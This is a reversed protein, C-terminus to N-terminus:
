IIFHNQYFCVAPFGVAFNYCVISQFIAFIKMKFLGRVAETTITYLAYLIAFIVALRFLDGSIHFLVNLIFGSFSLLYASSIVTLAIVIIYTTSIINTHRQADEKESNYKVMATNFGLLMPVYLIMAISQILSYKGYEAPGFFPRRPDSFHTGFFKRHRDWCRSGPPGQLFLPNQANNEGGFIIKYIKELIESPYNKMM